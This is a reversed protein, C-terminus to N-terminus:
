HGLNQAGFFHLQSPLPPQFPMGPCLYFVAKSSMMRLEGSSGDDHFIIEQCDSSFSTRSSIMKSSSPLGFSPYLRVIKSDRPKLRTLPSVITGDELTFCMQLSSFISLNESTDFM